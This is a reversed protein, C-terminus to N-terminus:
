AAIALPMLGERVPAWRVTAFAVGVGVVTGAVLGTVAEVLTNWGASWIVAATEVFRTVIMSPAPLIFAEVQFVRIAGEWVVIVAVFAVVAPTYGRVRERTTIVTM